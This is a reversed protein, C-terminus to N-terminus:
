FIVDLGLEGTEFGRRVRSTSAYHNIILSLPVKRHNAQPSLAFDHTLLSILNSIKEHDQAATLSKVVAEM